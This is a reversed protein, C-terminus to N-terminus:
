LRKLHGRWAVASMNLQRILFVWLLCRALTLFHTLSAKSFMQSLHMGPPLSSNNNHQQTSPSPSAERHLFIFRRQQVSLIFVQVAPKYTQTCPWLWVSGRAESINPSATQFKKKIMKPRTARMKRFKLQKNSDKITATKFRNENKTTRTTIKNNTTTKPTKTTNRHRQMAM